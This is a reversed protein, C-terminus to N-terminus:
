RSDDVDSDDGTSGNSAAAPPEYTAAADEALTSTSTPESGPQPQALPLPVIFVGRELLDAKYQEAVKRAEAVQEPTGYFLVPRCFSRLRGLPLTKGTSLEVRCDALSEERGIRAIQKEQASVDRRWLWWIVVASAACEYFTM